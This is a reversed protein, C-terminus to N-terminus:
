STRSSVTSTRTTQPAQPPPARVDPRPVIQWWKMCADRPADEVKKATNAKETRM